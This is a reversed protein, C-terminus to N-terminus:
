AVAAAAPSLDFVRDHFQPLTARHGVSIITPHWPLDRLLQYLAQQGAEDLSATAEDLFIVAPEALLIRAFALRQQEGGSLRQAWMDVKDLEPGLHELGVKKLVGVLKETSVAAGAVSANGGCACRAASM